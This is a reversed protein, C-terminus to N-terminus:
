PLRTCGSEREMEPSIFFPIGDSYIVGGEFDFDFSLVSKALVEIQGNTRKRCLEWSGPM